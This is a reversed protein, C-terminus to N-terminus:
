SVFQIIMIVLLIETSNSDFHALFFINSSDSMTNQINIAAAM